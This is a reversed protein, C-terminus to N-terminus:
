KPDSLVDEIANAFSEETMEFFEVLKGYGNKEVTKMNFFQDAFFPIGITPKANYVSEEM